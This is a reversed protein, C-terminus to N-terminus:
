LGCILSVESEVLYYSRSLNEGDLGPLAYPLFSYFPLNMGKNGAGHDLLQLARETFISKLHTRGASDFDHFGCPPTITNSASDM